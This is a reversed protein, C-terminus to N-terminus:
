ITRLLEVADKRAHRLQKEERRMLKEAKHLRKLEREAKRAIRDELEKESDKDKSQHHLHDADGQTKVGPLYRITGLFEDKPRTQAKQELRLAKEKEDSQWASKPTNELFANELIRLPDLSYKHNIQKYRLQQGASGSTTPM